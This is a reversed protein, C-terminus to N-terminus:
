RINQDSTIFLDFDADARRLLESNRIGSWGQAQVSTCTHSFAAAADAVSRM